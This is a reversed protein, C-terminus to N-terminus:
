KRMENLIKLELEKLKYNSCEKICEKLKDYKIYIPEEGEKFFCYKRVSEPIEIKYENLLKKNLLDYDNHVIETINHINNPLIFYKNYFLYDTFLHLFYGKNFDTDLEDEKDKVFEYLNVDASYCNSYHTEGKIKVSDPYIVGNIFENKNKIDNRFNKMYENAIILHILYGAM